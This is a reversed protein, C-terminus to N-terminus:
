PIHEDFHNVNKLHNTFWLVIFHGCMQLFALCFTNVSLKLPPLFFTCFMQLFIVLYKNVFFILWINAFLDVPYRCFSWGSIQLFILWINAMDKALPFLYKCFSWGSIQLFILWINAFDKAPLFLYKCFSWGSIQVIKQQLSCINAAFIQLFIFWINACDKALPFLHSSRLRTVDGHWLLNTRKELKAEFYCHFYCFTSLFLLMGMGCCILERGWRPKM